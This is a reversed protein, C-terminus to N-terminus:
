EPSVTFERLVGQHGTYESLLLYRGPELDLTFYATNGSPMIQVGGIFTAPGPSRLGGLDFANMWRVMEDVDSETELRAVHVNHGFGQEPNEAIHVEVMHRGPTMDGEVEMEFNSLTIRIDAPPPTAPSRADTVRIPRVMGEMYHFQGDETKMYCELVYNGPELDLTAQSTLGPATMGPGGVFEVAPFWEPLSQFLEAMAQEQAVGDDRVALWARNFAASLDLQYDDVTIGEPLRSLLIFHPEAGENRFRFTNWGAPIEDPASFAYDEAVIEIAGVVVPNEAAVPVGLPESQAALAGAPVLALSAAALATIVHWFSNRRHM